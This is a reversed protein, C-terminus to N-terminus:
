IRHTTGYDRSRAVEAVAAQQAETLPRPTGLAVSRAFLDACWELLELRECAEDITAGVAVSGHNAMLAATRGDLAAVVAEALEGTGFPAFPAVRM